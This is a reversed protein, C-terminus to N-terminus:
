ESKSSWRVCKEAFLTEFHLNAEHAAAVAYGFFPLGSESVILWANENLIEIGENQEAKDKLNYLVTEWQKIAVTNNSKPKLIAILINM